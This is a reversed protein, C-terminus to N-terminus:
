LGDPAATPALPAYARRRRRRRVGALGGLPLGLGVCLLGIWVVWPMTATAAAPAPARVPWPGRVPRDGPQVLARHADPQVLPQAPAPGLPLPRRMRGRGVPLPPLTRPGDGFLSLPDVYHGNVAERAGLHLHPRQTRPQGSRGVTGLTTGPALVRDRRVTVALLHQYTAILAGCRVSVTRGGGPVRGAFTVRGGCAARVATGVPAGLDVGRHQGPAFHDQALAFGRLVPGDLPRQWSDAAASAANATPAPILLWAIVFM